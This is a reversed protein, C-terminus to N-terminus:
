SKLLSSIVIEGSLSDLYIEDGVYDYDDSVLIAPTGNASDDIANLTIRLKGSRIGNYGQEAIAFYEIDFTQNVFNPLRFLTEGNGQISVEQEFGWEFNSPGEVEPVYVIDEIINSEVQFTIEGDATHPVDVSFSTDSLITLIRSNSGFSGTGSVKTLIMDRRMNETNGTDLTVITGGNVLTATATTVAGQSLSLVETRAFFDLTSQNGHNTFKLISYLPLDESGADVGCFYYKNAHSINNTGNDIYMAQKQITDFVCSEFINNSPGAKRASGFLEDITMNLGFAVGLGLEKFKCTNFTNDNSDWNSVIGYNFGEVECHIFKNNNTTVVKSTASPVSSGNKSNLELGINYTTSTDAPVLDEAFNAGKIKIHKFHSDRCSNLVLGKAGGQVELTM